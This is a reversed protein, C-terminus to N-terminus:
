QPESGPQQPEQIPAAELAVVPDSQPAPAEVATASGPPDASTEASIAAETGTAPEVVEPSKVSEAEHTQEPEM